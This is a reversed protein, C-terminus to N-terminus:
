RVYKLYEKSFCTAPLTEKGFNSYRMISLRNKQIEDHIILETPRDRGLIEKYDRYYATKLLKGFMSYFQAKYPRYTEEEVYLIIKGYAAAKTKPLLELRRTIKSNVKVITMTSVFYDISYTVRAVDGNSVDGILRQQPSLRIPKNTTPFYMWIDNEEMLMIKGKESAPYIFRVLSKTGDKVSVKYMYTNEKGNRRTIITLDVSFDKGPARIEDVIQLINEHTQGPACLTCLQLTVSLILYKM